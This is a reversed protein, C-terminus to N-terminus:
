FPVRDTLDLNDNEAMHVLVAFQNKVQELASMVKKADNELQETMDYANKFGEPVSKIMNQHAYKLYYLKFMLLDFQKSFNYEKEQYKTLHM